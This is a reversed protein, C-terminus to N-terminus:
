GIRFLSLMSSEKGYHLIQPFITGREVNKLHKLIIHDLSLKEVVATVKEGLRFRKVKLFLEKRQLFLQEYSFSM